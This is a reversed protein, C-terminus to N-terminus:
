LHRPPPPPNKFQHMKKTKLAMTPQQQTLMTSCLNTMGRDDFTARDLYHQLSQLNMHKTVDSIEKLSHEMNKMGTATTLRIQHNTYVESLKAM